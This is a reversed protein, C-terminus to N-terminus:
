VTGQILCEKGRYSSSDPGRWSQFTKAKKEIDLLSNVDLREMMLHMAAPSSLCFNLSDLNPDCTRSPSTSPTYAIDSSDRLVMMAHLLHCRDIDIINIAEEM